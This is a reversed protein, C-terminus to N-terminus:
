YGEITLFNVIGHYFLEFTDGVILDYQDPLFLYRKMKKKGKHKM